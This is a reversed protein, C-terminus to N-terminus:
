ISLQTGISKKMISIVRYGKEPIIKEQKSGNNGM